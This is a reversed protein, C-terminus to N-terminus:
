EDPPGPIACDCWGPGCRGCDTCVCVGCFLTGNCSRVCCTGGAATAVLNSPLTKNANLVQVSLVFGGGEVRTLGKGVLLTGESEMTEKNNNRIAKSVQLEVKGGDRIYPTLTLKKGEQEVTITGGEIETVNAWHGDALTFRLQVAKVSDTAVLARQPASRGHAWVIMILGLAALLTVATGGVIRHIKFM